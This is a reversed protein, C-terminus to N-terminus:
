ARLHWGREFLVFTIGWLVVILASMMIAGALMSGESIGIMTYRIGDVFYFFPNWQAIAQFREPLMDISNFVGGVFSLPMIVFTNLASLQEFSNAWLGVLVGVLGFIASVAVLYLIFTGLYDVQAAGFFVAIALVGVGVVVGRAVAGIVYGLIMETHSLPAVLLEEIHRIFRQIYLSSSSHSFAAGIVSMTLIGPLVFDIYRVGKVDAIGQGVIAGFIAIYLLASIWPTVLTQVSVRVFRRVEQYVLTGLGIWNITMHKNM